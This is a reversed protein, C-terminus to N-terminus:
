VFAYIRDKGVRAVESCGLGSLWHAAMEPNVHPRLKKVEILVVPRCRAITAAAGKLAQLEHGEVDLKLFDLDQLHLYDLPLVEIHEGSRAGDDPIIELYRSGTNGPRTVDDVIRGRGAKEGLASPYYAINAFVETNQKLCAFTDPAPEFSVVRRFRAALAVSWTGIHAGGDVATRFQKCHELAVELHDVQFGRPDKDFFPRFYTDAQPLAWTM